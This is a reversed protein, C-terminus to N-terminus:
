LWGAIIEPFMEQLAAKLQIDTAKEVCKWRIGSSQACEKAFQMLMHSVMGTIIIVADKNRLVSIVGKQFVGCSPKKEFVKWRVDFPSNEFLRKDLKREDRQRGGFIVVRPRRPSARTGDAVLRDLATFLARRKRDEEIRSVFTKALERGDDFEDTLLALLAEESPFSALDRVGEETLGELVAHDAVAILDAHIERWAEVIWSRVEDDQNAWSLLDRRLLDELGGPRDSAYTSIPGWQRALGEEPLSSLLAWGLADSWTRMNPM